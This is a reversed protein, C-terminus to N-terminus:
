ITGGSKVTDEEPKATGNKIAEDLLEKMQKEAKEALEGQQRGLEGQLEGLKGQKEGLEGQLEGVKGQQEGAQSQIEGLRSQLEGIESQLDGVQELTASSGLKQLKAKLRDLEATMDPVNVRVQEMKKSLAEQQEGLAEQQKGLEEQKKGLEEQPAWFAKARNITAQDRIIYSKEDRQFWIFDGPIQKKLKEIHHIDQMSGSMTYSDTKGSVIIFREDDDSGYAYHDGRRAVPAQPAWAPATPVGAIMPAAPPPPVATPAGAIAPAAPVGSIPAATPAGRLGPAVPAYARPAPPAPPAVQAGSNAGAPRVAAVLYVVPVALAVIAISVSKKLNVTVAGKWALIKELREEAQGAKAMSVGQWRVRGPISHLAEFFGLLTRAYAHRDAGCSLAAEDSAQEALAALHRELWWALPSFCFIARHLLSLQQTLADRRMVHSLEHALVADLTADDWERWNTPLLIRPRISGVTIPVSVLSSEAAQPAIALVRPEAIRRSRLILRHTLVMGAAFRVLLFLAVSLYLIAAWAGWSISGWFSHQAGAASAAQLQEVASSAPQQTSNRVPSALEARRARLPASTRVEVFDAGKTRIRPINAQHALSEPMSVQLPPLLQGLFPLALASYLVSTWVLLRASTNKVRFAALGLGAVGALLLARAAAIALEAFATSPAFFGAINM